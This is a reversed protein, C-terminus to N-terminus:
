EARQTDIIVDAYRGNDAKAVGGFRTSTCVRSQGECVRETRFSRLLPRLVASDDQSFRM